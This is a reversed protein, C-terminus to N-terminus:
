GDVRLAEVPPMRVGRVTPALSAALGIAIVVGAAAALVYPWVALAQELEGGSGGGSAWLLVAMWFGAGLAVGVAIQTLARRAVTMMVGGATGGLALRIGIERTRQAVTMSMLAYLATTSLLIALLSLVTMVSMAVRVVLSGDDPLDELAYVDDLLATPDAEAVLPRLRPVFASPNARLDILLTMPNLTGPTAPIYVVPTGDFLVRDESAEINPVVGVIERWPGPERDGSYTFRIRAGIANQPHMGRRDLFKQNVIVATPEVAPDLSVDGAGFLRGQVPSVDLVAFFAPDVFTAVAPRGRHDAPYGDGDVRVRREDTEEGPPEDSFAWRRVAPQSTLRRGLEEQMTALRVRLEEDGPGAADLGLGSRPITISAVLYRDGDAARTHEDPNPRFLRWTMGGAFLAAVGLGVELVILAGAVRGFRLTGGTGASQLTRQLMSGTARLAPLVGAVVGSLVSLGLAKLVFKPTVDLEFWFPLTFRPELRTLATDIVLLGVGTALLALLLAEVFLQGVIRARSAGLATRVAVEGSRTATRAFLLIGANGCVILLFVLPVAQAITLLLWMVGGQPEGVALTSFAVAEARIPDPRVGPVAQLDVTRLEARAQTLSVGDALRGYMWVAPGLRDGYDVSRLRLPLWVQETSPMAFGEPMVGVITTPVGAVRLTTGVVDHAGGLRTRWFDYGVVAVDPAGEVEDAASLVRGMMPPVRALAFSSATMLAGREGESRGDGSIVNIEGPIAAGLWAFTTLRARLREYDGLRLLDSGQQGVGIIGVVREGDHFPPSEGTAADLLHHPMLSVPIGVALSLVIVLSIGPHKPIMRLGLKVDLWSVGSAWWRATM